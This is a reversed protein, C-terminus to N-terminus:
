LDSLFGFLGLKGGFGPFVVIFLNNFLAITRLDVSIKSLGRVKALEM